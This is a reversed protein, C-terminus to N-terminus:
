DINLTVKVDGSHKLDIEQKDKWGYNCKLDFIIGITSGHGNQLAQVKCAYIHAKMSKITGFFEEYGEAKEYNLLTDPTLKLFATCFYEWAPILPKSVVKVGTATAIEETHNQCYQMYAEFAQELRELTLERPRGTEKKSM